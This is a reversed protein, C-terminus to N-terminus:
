GEDICRKAEQEFADAMKKWSFNEEVFARCDQPDFRFSDPKEIVEELKRRM